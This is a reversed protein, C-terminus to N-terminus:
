SLISLDSQLKPGIMLQKNLFVGSSTKASADFVVRLKTTSSDEKFVCHHPLYYSDNNSIAIGKDPIVEMHGLSFFRINFASEYKTQAGFCLIPSSCKPFFKRSCRHITQFAIKCRLSWKLRPIYNASFLDRM